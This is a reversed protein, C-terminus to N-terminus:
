LHELSFYEEESRCCTVSIPSLDDWGAIASTGRASTRGFRTGNSEVFAGLAPMTWMGIGSSMSRLPLELNPAGHRWFTALRLGRIRTRPRVPM